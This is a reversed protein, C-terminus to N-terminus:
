SLVDRCRRSRPEALPRPASGSRRVHRRHSPGSQTQGQLNRWTGALSVNVTTGGPNVAVFGSTFGRVYAGGTGQRSYPGLPPGVPVDDWPHAVTMGAFTSAPTFLFWTSRGTTGLLFSGLTFARWRNVLAASATEWLKTEVMVVRGEAEAQAVM